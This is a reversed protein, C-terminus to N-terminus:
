FFISFWIAVTLFVLSFGVYQLAFTVQTNFRREELNLYEDRTLELQKLHKIVIPDVAKYILLYGDIFDPLLVLASVMNYDNPKFIIIDGQSKMNGANEDNGFFIDERHLGKIASGKDQALMLREFREFKGLGKIPIITNIWIPTNISYISMDVALSRLPTLRIGLQGLPSRNSENIVDEKFFIFSKNIYKIAINEPHLNMWKKISQMSIQNKKIFKNDTLYKGVSTYEYNNKGDFVFRREIGNEFKLTGSGQIHMFYLDITNSIWALIPLDWLVDEEIEKRTLDLFKKVNKKPFGYLPKNYVETKSASAHLIPEFYGTYLTEENFKNVLFVPTRLENLINYYMM